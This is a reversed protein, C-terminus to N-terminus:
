VHGSGGQAECLAQRYLVVMEELLDKAFLAAAHVLLGEPHEGKKRILEDFIDALLSARLEADGQTDRPPPPCTKPIPSQRRPFRIVPSRPEAM